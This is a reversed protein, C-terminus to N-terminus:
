FFVYKPDYIKELSDEVKRFLVYAKELEDKNETSPELRDIISLDVKRYAENLDKYYGLAVASLIALNLDSIDDYKLKYTPYGYVDAILQRWFRSKGGGGFVLIRDIDKGTKSRTEEWYGRLQFTIGEIMSRMIHERTHGLCLGFILGRAYDNYPYREGMMHPLFVLGESGPKIRSIEQDMIAYPNQGTREAVYEEVMCFQEKLWKLGGGGGASMTGIGSWRGDTVFGSIPATGIYILLTDKVECRQIVPRTVAFDGGGTLVPTGEMLGMEAAAKETVKGIIEGTPHIEPVMNHPIGILDILEWKWKQAERDFLQTGGASTPDTCFDGTLKTRLYDTPVLFKYANAFIEPYYEKVWFLKAATYHASIPSQDKHNKIKMNLAEAQSVARLDPWILCRMLPNCNEDVLSLGHSQACISIAKVKDSSANAKLLAEKIAESTKLTWIHQDQEAWTPKPYVTETERSSSSVIKFNTDFLIVKLASTGLDITLLYDDTLNNVKKCSEKNSVM